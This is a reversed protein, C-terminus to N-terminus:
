PFEEKYIVSADCSAECTYVVITLWDLSDVDNEVRFKYLLQSMIQFEFIMPGKCHCCKPIDAKALQGRSRPWLPKAGPNRSYRLVQARAKNIQDQYAVWCEEDSDERAVLNQECCLPGVALILVLYNLLFSLINVALNTVQDGTCPRINRRATVHKRAAVVFKKEKGPVVGTAYHFKVCRMPKVPGRKWQEHQDRLLCKMSTCMFVFLTRHYTSDKPLAAYVQLVFQLPEECMDCLCCKGSPLNIPDLWAPAGGAKSPFAQRLLLWPKAPKRLFGLKVEEGEEEDEDDEYDDDEEVVVQEEEGEEEIDEEEEDLPSIQLGKLKETSDGNVPSNMEELERRDVPYRLRLTFCCPQIQFLLQRPPLETTKNNCLFVPFSFLHPNALLYSEVVKSLGVVKEYRAKIDEKNVEVVDKAHYHNIMKCVSGGASPEFKVEYVIKELKDGIRADCSAECTYVVITLWDLSDVDNEIRFKYLLQSMIQFEFIMPGKCHCCKPIDAKALQGRSLPWLPKAGPNRLVQGKAKGIREEYAAWCKKDSDREFSDLINMTDDRGSRSVLSKAYRGDDSMETDDSEYGDYIEYEPWLTKSAIAKLRRLWLPGVALILVLYNLLFSLINVALNTVHKRAAVVFKKQKGPVVGSAYHFKVCRMPKEPGHKWQEHQDRLLCKMSTCMFVFLTRHFTSDKDPLNAYVQLVFQLPEECMDCLCSKGSPLNIPDLWAPAGGAKSPFAERLLSWPKAPKDLFGLTVEEEEEDEDDDYDDDEGVVVQEEEGEEEIDEEEDDLPSIQLGKLKETSDGNVPSNM